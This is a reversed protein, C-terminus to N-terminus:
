AQLQTSLTQFGLINDQSSMERTGKNKNENRFYNKHGAHNNPRCQVEM